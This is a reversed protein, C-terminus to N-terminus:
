AAHPTEERFTVGDEPTITLYPHLYRDGEGIMAQTPAPWAAGVAVIARASPDVVGRRGRAEALDRCVWHFARQWDMTGAARLASAAEATRLALLYPSAATVNRHWLPGGLVGWRRLHAGRFLPHVVGAEDRVCGAEVVHDDSEVTVGSAFAIPGEGHLWGALQRLAGPTHVLLGGDLFVTVGERATSLLSACAEVPELGVLPHVKCWSPLRRGKARWRKLFTWGDEPTLLLDVQTFDRRERALHKVLSLLPGTDRGGLVVVRVPAVENWVIRYDADPHREFRGPLGIREAHRSLARLQAGLAYPKAGLGSSTSAAHVRWSYGVGPVRVIVKARETARLFLDWDQAGDVGQAWGGIARVLDTRIINFHTLYNVSYLTEPSWDPKLLPSFRRAGDESMLDKDTYLFDAEPQDRIAAAVRALATRPLVDDHDLLAIYDGRAMRLAQNSNGSIGFNSELTQVRFRPDRRAHRRLLAALATEEPAAFAICAEWHPYSQRRLSELTANLVRPSVKYVPLVVSILPGPAQRETFGRDLGPEVRAKWATYPDLRLLDSLIPDSAAAHMPTARTRERRLLADALAGATGGARWLMGGPRVHRLRWVRLVRAVKLSIEEARWPDGMASSLSLQVQLREIERAQARVASDLERIRPRLAFPDTRRTM